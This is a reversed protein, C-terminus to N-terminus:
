LVIQTFIRHPKVVSAFHLNGKELDENLIIVSSKDSKISSTIQCLILENNDLVASVYASRNKAKSLDSYPFPFVVIEGKTFLGM